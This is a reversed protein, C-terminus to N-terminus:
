RCSIPAEYCALVLDNDDVFVPNGNADEPTCTEPPNVDWIWESRRDCRREAQDIIVPSVLVAASVDSWCQMCVVTLCEAEPDSCDEPDNDLMWQCMSDAANFPADEEFWIPPGSPACHLLLLLGAPVLATRLRSM